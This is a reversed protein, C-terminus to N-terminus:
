RRVAAILSLDDTSRATTEPAALVAAMAEEPADPGARLFQDLPAFFGPHPHDDRHRIALGELGDSALCLFAPAPLTRIHAQARWDTDTLFPTQNVYEGRWGPVARRFTHDEPARIVCFGDGIQAALLRDPLAACLILTCAQSPGSLATRAADLTAEALARLADDNPLAPLKSLGQDLHRLAESVAIRAGAAADAASGAGDALAALLTGDRRHRM